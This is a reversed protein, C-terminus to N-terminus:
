PSGKERLAVKLRDAFFELLDRRVAAADLKVGQGEYGAIATEFSARNCRLGNELHSPHCRTGRPLAFPDKIGHAKRGRGSVSSPISGEGAGGCRLRRRHPM